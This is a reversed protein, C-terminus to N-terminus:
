ALRDRWKPPYAKWRKPLTGQMNHASDPTLYDISAHPRRENYVRVIQDIDLKADLYSDYVKGPRFEEKITGNVREAIANESPGTGMSIRIKRKMLTDVYQKSCYQTGKDSHHILTWDGLSTWQDLALILAGECGQTHLTPHLCHGVIKRSYADTILSLYSFGSRLRIYTIDSVWLRHAEMVGLDKILNPYKHLWHHSDTTKPKRRRKRLLTDRRHVVMQDLRIQCYNRQANFNPIHMASRVFFSHEQHNLFPLLTFQALLLITALTVEGIMAEVVIVSFKTILLSFRSRRAENLDVRGRA